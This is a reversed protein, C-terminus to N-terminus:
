PTSSIGLLALARTTDRGVWRLAAAINAHGDRQVQDPLQQELAAHMARQAEWPQHRGAHEQGGQWGGGDEWRKSPQGAQHDDQGGQDDDLGSLIRLDSAVEAACLRWGATSAFYFADAPRSRSCSLTAAVGCLTHERHGARRAM